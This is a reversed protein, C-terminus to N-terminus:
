KIKTFHINIEQEAQMLVRRPKLKLPMSQKTREDLTVRYHLLISSLTTKLEQLAFRLGICNRPGDGFPLYTCPPRARKNEETFREPDFKEPESYYKPDHHIAYVPVLVRDGVELRGKAGPIQWAKTCRRILSGAIPYKRLTESIVRDLYEMDKTSDYNIAGHKQVTDQVEKRLKDQIEQNQSLELMCFTLTTATTEFGAVFFIFTNAALLKEDLIVQNENKPDIQMAEDQKKLNMLIQIFDNREVRNDERYKMTDNVLNIFFDEKSKDMAKVGLLSPLNDSVIRLFTRLKFRWTTQMVERGMRRFESDPNKLSNFQLGFACSGIVDTALKAMSEQVDILEKKQTKEDILSCLSDVCENFQPSMLKLKGSSFAPTLKQRLAKWRHGTMNLLNANLPDLKIDVTTGRDYFYTFDKVLIQQILEPDKVMLLPSRSAFWGGYPEEHFYDYIEQHCETIHHRGLALNLTNGFFPIVPKMFKVGKKEWHSYTSIGYWYIATLTSVLLFFIDFWSVEYGFANM